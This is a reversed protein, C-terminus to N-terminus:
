KLKYKNLVREYLEFDESQAFKDIVDQPLEGLLSDTMLLVKKLDDDLENTQPAPKEKKFLSFGTTKEKKPQQKKNNGKQKLHQQKQKEKLAQKEKKLRLREELRAKRLEIRQLRKQEREQKKTHLEIKPPTITKKQEKKEKQLIEHKKEELKTKKTELKELKEHEHELQKQIKQEQQQKQEEEQQQQEKLEKSREDFDVPIYSQKDDLKKQKQEKHGKSNLYYIQSKKEIEETQKMATVFVDEYTKQKLTRADIVEIKKHHQQTTSDKKSSAVPKESSHRRALTLGQLRQAGINDGTLTSLDIIEIRDEDRPKLDLITKTFEHSTIFKFQPAM